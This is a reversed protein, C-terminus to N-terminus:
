STMRQFEAVNAKSYTIAKKHIHIMEVIYVITVINVLQKSSFIKISRKKQPFKM